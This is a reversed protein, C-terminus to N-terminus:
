TEYVVGAKFTAKEGTRNSVLRTKADAAM